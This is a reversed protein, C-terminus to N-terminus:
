GVARRQGTRGAAAILRAGTARYSVAHEHVPCVAGSGAAAHEAVPRRAALPEEALRTEAGLPYGGLLALLLVVEDVSTAFLYLIGKKLNGYVVRGQEVAGVITSFNDDTIIITAASKAVETGTIGMAVGVDARALAPADNVSDGTMAVVAVFLLLAAVM